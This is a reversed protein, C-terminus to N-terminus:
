WCRCFGFESFFGRGGGGAGAGGEMSLPPTPSVEDVGFLEQSGSQTSADTIAITSCPKSSLMRLMPDEQKASAAGESAVMVVTQGDSPVSCVQQPQERAQSCQALIDPAEDTYEISENEARSKTPDWLRGIAGRATLVRHVKPVAAGDPEGAGVYFPGAQLPFPFFQTAVPQSGGLDEELQYTAFSQRLMAVDKLIQLKQRQRDSLLSKAVGAFMSFAAPMNVAYFRSVRGVYHNGLVKHVEKLASLSVQGVGVSKLDVIVSLNEVRGPVVMYRLFYEMCFVLLRILKDIRNQKYWQRPIRSGRVVLAPHLAFDRGTFYAVGHAMDELVDDSQIPGDKFYSQRWEQTAQMAKLARKVDMRAHSLFRTAMTAVSLEFTLGHTCARQQLAALRAQENAQLETNCHINREQDGNEFSSIVLSPTPSFALAESPLSFPAIFEERCALTGIDAALLFGEEALTPSAKSASGENSVPSRPSGSQLSLNSFSAVKKRLSQMACAVARQLAQAEGTGIL